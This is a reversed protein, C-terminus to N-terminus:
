VRGPSLCSFLSESGQLSRSLLDVGLPSESIVWYYYLTGSKHARSELDEWPNPSNFSLPPSRLPLHDYVSTRMCGAELRLDLLPEWKGPM